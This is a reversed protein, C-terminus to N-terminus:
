VARTSNILSHLKILLYRMKVEATYLRRFLLRKGLRLVIVDLDHIIAFHINTFRLLLVLFVEDLLLVHHLLHLVFKCDYVGRLISIVRLLHKEFLVVHNIGVDLLM